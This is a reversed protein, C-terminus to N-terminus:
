GHYRGAHWCEWGTLIWNRLVATITLTAYGLPCIIPLFRTCKLPWNPLNKEVRTLGEYYSLKRAFIKELECHKCLTFPWQPFGTSVNQNEFAVLPTKLVAARASLNQTYVTKLTVATSLLISFRNKCSTSINPQCSDHQPSLLATLNKFL